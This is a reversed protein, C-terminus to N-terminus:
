HVEIKALRRIVTKKVLRKKPIIYYGGGEVHLHYYKGVDKLKTGVAKKIEGDSTEWEVQIYKKDEIEELDKISLV